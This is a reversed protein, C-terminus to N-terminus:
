PTGAVETSAAPRSRDTAALEHVAFVVVAVVVLTAVGMGLWSSKGDHPQVDAPPLLSVLIGVVCLGLPLVIPM